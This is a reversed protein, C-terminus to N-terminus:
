DMEIKDNMDYLTPTEEPNIIKKIIGIQIDLKKIFKENEALDSNVEQFVDTTSRHGSAESMEKRLKMNRSMRANQLKIAAFFYCFTKKVLFIAEVIGMRCRNQVEVNTM